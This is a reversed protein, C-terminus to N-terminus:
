INDKIKLYSDKLITEEHVFAFKGIGLLERLEDLLQYQGSEKLYNIIKEQYEFEDENLECSLSIKHMKCWDNIQLEFNRYFYYLDSHSLLFSAKSKLFKKWTIDTLNEGELIKLHIEHAASEADEKVFFTKIFSPSENYNFHHEQIAQMSDIITYYDDDYDIASIYVHYIIDGTRLPIGKDIIRQTKNLTIKKSQSLKGLIQKLWQSTEKNSSEQLNAQLLIQYATARVNLKSNDLAEILLDVGAEGYKLANNLAQIIQKDDGSICQQRLGQIGGLVAGDIPPPSQGGLVVDYERPQQSNDSM